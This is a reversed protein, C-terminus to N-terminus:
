PPQLWTHIRSVLRDWRLKGDHPVTLQKERNLWRILPETRHPAAYQGSWYVFVRDAFEAPLPTISFNHSPLSLDDDTHWIIFLPRPQVHHSTGVEDARVFQVIANLDGAFLRESAFRGSADPTFQGDWPMFAVHGDAHIAWYVSKGGLRDKFSSNIQNLAHNLESPPPAMERTAVVIVVVDGGSLRVSPSEAPMPPDPVPKADTREPPRPSPPEDGVVPQDKPDKGRKRVPPREDTGNSDRGKERPPRGKRDNDGINQETPEPAFEVLSVAVANSTAVLGLAIWWMIPVAFALQALKTRGRATAAQHTDDAQQHEM